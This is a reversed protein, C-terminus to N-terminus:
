VNHLGGRKDPPFMDYIANIAAANARTASWLLDYFRKPEFVYAEGEDIDYTMAERSRIIDHVMRLTAEAAIGLEHLSDIRDILAAPLELAARTRPGALPQGGPPYYLTEPHEYGWVGNLRQGVEELYPMLYLSLSMAKSRAERHMRREGAAHQAAPVAVAVLIAIVSGVAQVWSPWDIPHPALTSKGTTLAWAFLGGFGFAMAAVVYTDRGLPEKDKDM